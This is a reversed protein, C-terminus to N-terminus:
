SVVATPLPGQMALTSTGNEKVTSPNVALSQWALDQTQAQLDGGRGASSPPSYFSVSRPPTPPHSQLSAIDSLPANPLRIGGDHPPSQSDRSLPFAAVSPSNYSTSPVSGSSYVSVNDDWDSASSGSHVSSSSSVSDRRVLGSFERPEKKVMTSKAKPSVTGKSQKRAKNGARLEDFRLPRPRLHTREYLGCKNCVIKGPNLTSRRWSPPETTHCNFCRRRLYQTEKSAADDTHHVPHGTPLYSIGLPHCPSSSPPRYFNSQTPIMMSASSDELKINANEDFDRFNAHPSANMQPIFHETPMQVQESTLPLHEAYVADPRAYHAQILTGDQQPMFPPYQLPMGHEQDHRVIPFTARRIPHYDHPRTQMQQWPEYSTHQNQNQHQQPQQQQQETIEHEYLEQLLSGRSPNFEYNPPPNHHSWSPNVPVAGDDTNDAFINRVPPDLDKYAPYHMDEHTRPSPTRPTSSDSYSTYGDFALSDM